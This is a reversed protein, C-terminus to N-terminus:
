RERWLGELPALLTTDAQMLKACIESRSPVNHSPMSQSPEEAAVDAGSQEPQQQSTTSVPVPPPPPPPAAPSEGAANTALQANTAVKARSDVASRYSNRHPWAALLVVACCALAHRPAPARSARVEQATRKLERFVLKMIRKDEERAKKNDDCAVHHGCGPRGACKDCTFEVEWYAIGKLAASIFVQLETM